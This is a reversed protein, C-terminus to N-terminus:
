GVIRIRGESDLPLGLSVPTFCLRYLGNEDFRVLPNSGWHVIACDRSVEIKWERGLFDPNLEKIQAFEEGGRKLALPKGNEDEFIAYHNSMEVFKAYRGRIIYTRGKDLM